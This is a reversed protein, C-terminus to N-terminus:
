VFEKHDSVAGVGRYGASAPSTVYSTATMPPPIVPM